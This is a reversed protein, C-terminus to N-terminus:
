DVTSAAEEKKQRAEAEAMRACVVDYELVAGCISGDLKRHSKVVYRGIGILISDRYEKMEQLTKQAVM